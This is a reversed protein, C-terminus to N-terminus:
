GALAQVLQDQKDRLRGRALTALAAPDTQGALRAELMARASVGMINSVVSSLQINADELVKQIRNLLRAREEVLTRRYRTLERVERQPADPIFSGRLLGHRLLDAIWEADAVDTKRGPVTKMHQVNVM